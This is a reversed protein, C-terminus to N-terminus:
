RRPGLSGDKSAGTESGWAVRGPLRIAGSIYMKCPGVVLAVVLSVVSRRPLIGDPARIADSQRGSGRGM